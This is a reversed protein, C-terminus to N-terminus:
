SAKNKETSFSHVHLFSSDSLSEVPFGHPSGWLSFSVDIWADDVDCPKSSDLVGECTDDDPRM